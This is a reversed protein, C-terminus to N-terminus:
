FTVTVSLYLELTKDPMKIAGLTEPGSCVHLISNM